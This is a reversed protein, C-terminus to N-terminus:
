KKKELLLRCVLHPRSQLESTHEESRINATLFSYTVSVSFLQHSYKIRIALPFRYQPTVVSTLLRMSSCALLGRFAALARRPLPGRSNTNVKLACDLCCAM